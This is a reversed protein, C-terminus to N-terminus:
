IKQGEVKKSLAEIESQINASTPDITQLQRFAKLALDNRGTEKLMSGLGELADFHRPEIALVHALDTLAEGFRQESYAFEASRNWTEPNSPDLHSAAELLRRQTGADKTLAAQADRALLLNVTASDSNLWIERIQSKIPDAEAANAAKALRDFLDNLAKARDVPAEPLVLASSPGGSATGNPAEASTGGAGAAVTAFALLGAWCVLHTSLTFRPRIM